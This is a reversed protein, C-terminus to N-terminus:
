FFGLFCDQKKLTQSIISFVDTKAYSQNKKKEKLVFGESIFNRVYPLIMEDTVCM